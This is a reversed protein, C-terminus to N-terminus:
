FGLSFGSFVVLIGAKLLNFVKKTETNPARSFNFVQWTLKKKARFAM